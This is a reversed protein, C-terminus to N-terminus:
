TACIIVVDHLRVVCTEKGMVQQVFGGSKPSNKDEDLSGPTVSLFRAQASSSNVLQHSHSRPSIPSVASLRQTASRANNVQNARMYVASQLLASGARTSRIM